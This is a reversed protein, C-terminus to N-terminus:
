FEIRPAAAVSPSRTGVSSVARKCEWGISAPECSPRSACSSDDHVDTATSKLWGIGRQIGSHGRRQARQSPWMEVRHQDKPMCVIRQCDGDTYNCLGKAKPPFRGSQRGDAVKEVGAVAKTLSEWRPLRRLAGTHVYTDLDTSGEVSRQASSM